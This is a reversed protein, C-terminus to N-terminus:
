RIVNLVCSTNRTHVYIDYSTLSSSHLVLFMQLQDKGIIYNMASQETRNEAAGQIYLDKFWQLTSKSWYLLFAVIRTNSRKKIVCCPNCSGLVAASPRTHHPTSLILTISDSITLSLAPATLCCIVAPVMTSSIVTQLLTSNLPPELEHFISVEM